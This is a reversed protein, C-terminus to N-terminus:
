AAEKAMEEGWLAQMESSHALLKQLPGVADISGDKLVVVQDARSLAARRHSVVLCTPRPNLEFLRDWLLAETEVDLASSLDDFVLLQASRVYMRAAAARQIQGGSLRVGRPGVLTQLGHDMQAVDREFVALHIAQELDTREPALGLLINDVLPESFLRPVQGTFAVRPPSMFTRLEQVRKGNWLVAGSDAPLLGLLLKLLTTKGSGIRGTVVTFSGRPLSLHIDTVAFPAQGDGGEGSESHQHEAAGEYRRGLGQIQLTELKDDAAVEYSQLRPYDRSMYIPNHEVVAGPPKGQMILEMRQTSVGVQKFRTILNGATRMLQTAPWIYAAFLAFDGITFQGSIMARAGLLLVIGVGVDVTGNSLADVLQTLLRDRVMAQRRQNNVRRFREVIREEANAIKIAQTANFMDAIMGTVESTAKRSAQRYRRAHGGLRQAVFIVLALPLYTGLTIAVNISLMISFAVVATVLQAVTDDIVIIAQTMEHTDDRLTSIVRGVSMPQGDEDIPLPRSGPMELIRALMNRVILAGGHQTFSVYAMVAIFSAILRVATQLLELGVASWASLTFGVEGSLGNFFARLILGTVTMTVFLVTVGSIDAAYFRPRFRILEWFYRWTSM